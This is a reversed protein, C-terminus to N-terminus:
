WGGRSAFFADWWAKSAAYEIDLQPRMDDTANHVGIALEASSIAGESYQATLKAIILALRDSVPMAPQADHPNQTRVPTKM